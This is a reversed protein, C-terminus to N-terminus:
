MRLRSLGLATLIAKQGMSLDQFSVTFGFPSAKLRRKRTHSVSSMINERVSTGTRLYYDDPGFDGSATRQWHDEVMVYGYALQLSSGLTSVNSVVDGVNTFWDVLWSFPLMEWALEPTPIVGYVRNFETIERLSDDLDLPYAIKYAGSFWVRRSSETTDVHNTAYLMSVTKGSSGAYAYATRPTTKSITKEDVLTRRRRVLRGNDRRFQKLIEEYRKTLDIVSAADSVTPAIGFQYNLYEGGIASLSRDKVLQRGIVQPLGGALEALSTSLSMEPKTPLTEKIATAGYGMLHADPLAGLPSTFTGSVVNALNVVMRNDAHFYGDVRYRRGSFSKVYWEKKVYKPPTIRISESLFPGGTDVRGLGTSRIARNLKIKGSNNQDITVKANGWPTDAATKRTISPKSTDANLTLVSESPTTSHINEMERHRRLRWHRAYYGNDAQRSEEFM